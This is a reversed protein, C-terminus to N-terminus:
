RVHPALRELETIPLGGVAVLARDEAFWGLSSLLPTSLTVGQSGGVTATGLFPLRGLIGRLAIAQPTTTPTQLLVFTDFGRGYVLAVIPGEFWAALDFPSPTASLDTTGLDVVFAGQFPYSTEENELALLTFGAQIQAEALSLREVGSLPCRDAEACPMASASDGDAGSARFCDPLPLEKEQTLIGASSPPAFIGEDISGFSVQTFGATLVSESDARAFVELRLPVFTEGDVALRLSGFLSTDSTPVLTLVYCPRGAVKEQAAVSLSAEPEVKELLAALSGQLDTPDFEPHRASLTGMAQLLRAPLAYKTLTGDAADYLAVSGEGAYFSRDGGLRDLIDVRLHDEDVWLRVQTEQAFLVNDAGGMAGLPGFLHNEITIDGSLTLDRSLAQTVEALLRDPTTTPLGDQSQAYAKVLGFSLGAALIVAVITIVFVNRHRGM